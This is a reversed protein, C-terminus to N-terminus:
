RSHAGHRTGRDILQQCIYPAAQGPEIRSLRQLCHVAPRGHDVNAGIRLGGAIADDRFREYDGSVDQFPPQIWRTVEAMGTRWLEVILDDQEAILTVLGAERRRCQLLQAKGVRSVNHTTKLCPAGCPEWHFLGAQGPLPMAPVLCHDLAGHQPGLRHCKGRSLRLSCHAPGVSRRSMSGAESYAAAIVLM